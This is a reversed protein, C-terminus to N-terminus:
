NDDDALLLHMKGATDSLCVNATDVRVTPPTNDLVASRHASVAGKLDAAAFTIAIAATVRFLLARNLVTNIM